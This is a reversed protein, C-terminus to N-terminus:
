PGEVCRGSPIAVLVTVTSGGRGKHNLIAEALISRASNGTCLFLVRYHTTMNSPEKWLSM